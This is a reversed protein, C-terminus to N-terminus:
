KTEDIDGVTISQIDTSPDRKLIKKIKKAVWRPHFANLRVAQKLYVYPKKPLSAKYNDKNVKAAEEESLLGQIWAVSLTAVHARIQKAKRGNM